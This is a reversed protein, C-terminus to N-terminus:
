FQWQSYCDNVSDTFGTDISYATSVHEHDIYYENDSVNKLHPNDTKHKDIQSKRLNLRCGKLRNQLVILKLRIANSDTSDLEKSQLAKRMALYEHYTSETALDHLIYLTITSYDEKILKFDAIPLQGKRSIDYNLSCVARLIMDSIADCELSDFYRDILAPFDISHIEVGQPLVKKTQQLLYKDYVLSAYFRGNDDQFHCLHFEGGLIGLEGHRNCRGASQVVSDLPAFDRLVISFSIDVGAELLQTSVLVIRENNKLCDMVDKLIATRHIPIHDTTLCFVRCDGGLHEQLYTYASKAAKRTNLVLLLSDFSTECITELRAFLPQPDPEYVMRVRNFLPQSFFEERSIEVFEGPDFLYPRTATCLLIYTKFRTALVKFIVRLLRYYQPDINQVEDLIVISNIIKKLKMLMSNRNGVLTHFLQVFTSVIMASTWSEVILLGNMYDWYDYEEEEHGLRYYDQLHHHRIIYHHLKNEAPNHNFEVIDKYIAFNQDIISTYPLCYLVRRKKSLRCQLTNVFNMCALTKGIGTPATLTYLYQESSIGVASGAQEYFSQRIANIPSDNASVVHANRYPNPDVSLEEVAAEFSSLDLRAADIKDHAVLASYLLNTTIFLEVSDELGPQAFNSEALHELLDRLVKKDLPNLLIDHTKLFAQLKPSKEVQNCIDRYIQVTQLITAMDLTELNEFSDLNGHHRQIIKFALPAAFDPFIDERFNQAAIVASVLSHHSLPGGGSENSIKEQFYSSAKGLDHMLGIRYALKALTAKSIMKLDLDLGQIVGKCAQAVSELHATLPKSDFGRAAPHSIPEM